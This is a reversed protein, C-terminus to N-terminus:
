FIIFCITRVIIVRIRGIFVPTMVRTKHRFRSSLDIMLRNRCVLIMNIGILIKLSYSIVFIVFMLRGKQIIMLLSLIDVKVFFFFLNQLYSDTVSSAKNMCNSRKSIIFMKMPVSPCNCTIHYVLLSVIQM